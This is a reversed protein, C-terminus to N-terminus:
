LQDRWQGWQGMKLQKPATATTAGPVTKDGLAKKQAAPDPQQGKWFEFMKPLNDLNVQAGFLASQDDVWKLFENQPFDGHTDRIDELTDALKTRIQSIQAEQEQAEKAQREKFQKYLEDPDIPKPALGRLYAEYARAQAEDEGLLQKRLVQQAPDIQEQPANRTELMKQIAAIKEETTKTYTNFRADYDRVLKERQKEWRVHYPVSPKRAAAQAPTEGPVPQENPTEPEESHQNETAAPAAPTSTDEGLAAKVEDSLM